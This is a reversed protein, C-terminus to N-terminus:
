LAGGESLKQGEPVRGCGFQGTSQPGNRFRATTEVCHAPFCRPDTRYDDDNRVDVITPAQSVGIFRARQSTTILTTPPM